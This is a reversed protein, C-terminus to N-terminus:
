RASQSVLRDNAETLLLKYTNLEKQLIIIQKSQTDVVNFCDADRGELKCTKNGKADKVAVPQTDEAFAPAALFLLAALIIRRMQPM